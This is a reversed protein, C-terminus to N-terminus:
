KDLVIYCMTSNPYSAHDTRKIGLPCDTNTQIFYNISPGMAPTGDTDFIIGRAFGSYTDNVVKHSANPLSSAYPELSTQLIPDWYNNATGNTCQNLAFGNEAPYDSSKGLCKWNVNPYFGTDAKHLMLLKKYAVVKSIIDTNTAKNNVSAFAVTSISALVGVVVIVILLEVITFGRNPMKM